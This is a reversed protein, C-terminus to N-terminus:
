GLSVPLSLSHALGTPASRGLRPTRAVATGFVQPCEARGFDPSYKGSVRTPGAYVSYEMLGSECRPGACVDELRPSRHEPCWFCALTKFGVTCLVRHFVTGGAPPPPGAGQPGAGSGRGRRLPASLRGRADPGAGQAGSGSPAPASGGLRGRTGAVRASTAIASESSCSTARRMRLKGSKGMGPTSNLYRAVPPVSPAARGPSDPRPPRQTPGATM